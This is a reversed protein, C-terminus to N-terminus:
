SAEEEGPKTWYGLVRNHAWGEGERQIRDDIVMDLCKTYGCIDVLNDRKAKNLERSVKVMIMCLAVQEPTVEVKLIPGWLVATKSFDDIPRGYAAGRDGSVIRDAEATVTEKIDSM